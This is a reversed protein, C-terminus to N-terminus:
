ETTREIPSPKLGKALKAVKKSAIFQRRQTVQPRREQEFWYIRKRLRAERQQSQRLLKRLEKADCTDPDPKTPAFFDFADSGQPQLPQM